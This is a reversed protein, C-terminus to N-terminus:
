VIGEFGSASSPLIRRPMPVHLRWTRRVRPMFRSSLNARACSRGWRGCWAYGQRWMPQHVPASPSVPWRGATSRGSGGTWLPRSSAAIPPKPRCTVAPLPWNRRPRRTDRRLLQPYRDGRPHHRHHIRVSFGSAISIAHCPSPGAWRRRLQRSTNWGVHGRLWVLADRRVHEESM